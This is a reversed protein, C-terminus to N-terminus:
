YTLDWTKPTRRPRTGEFEACYDDGTGTIIVVRNAPDSGIDTFAYGFEGHSAGGWKLSGGHSHLTVQLIGNRREFKVTEYRNEYEELKSM